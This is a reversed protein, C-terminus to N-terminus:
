QGAAEHEAEEEAEAGHEAEIFEILDRPDYWSLATVSDTHGRVSPQGYDRGVLAVSASPVSPLPAVSAPDTM